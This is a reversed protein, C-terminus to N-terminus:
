KSNPKFNIIETGQWTVYKSIHLYRSSIIAKILQTYCNWFHLTKYPKKYTSYNIGLPQVLRICM